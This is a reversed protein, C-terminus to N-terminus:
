GGGAWPGGGEAGGAGGRGSTQRRSQSPHGRGAASAGVLPAVAHIVCLQQRPRACSPMPCRRVRAGAGWIGM